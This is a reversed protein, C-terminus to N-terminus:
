GRACSALSLVGSLREPRVLEALLVELTAADLGAARSDSILLQALDAYFSKDVRGAEYFDKVAKPYGGHLLYNEFMQNLTAFYSDYLERL